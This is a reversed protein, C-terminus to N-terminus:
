FVVVFLLVIWTLTLPWECLSCYDALLRAVFCFCPPHFFAVLLGVVCCFDVVLLLVYDSGLCRGVSAFGAAAGV